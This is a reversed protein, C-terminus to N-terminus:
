RVRVALENEIHAVIQGQLASLREETLTGELDQFVMRYAVSRHDPPLHHGEFVDFISVSQVLAGGARRIERVIDGAPLTKPLVFALDREVAPYRPVPKFKVVRPQGRSLAKLDIEAVAVPVRVKESMLWQPHAAALFGINRGEVVVTAAQVPHWTPSASVWPVWQVQQIQLRELISELRAKLEFFVPTSVDAKEWLGPRSGWKVLALRSDQEYGTSARRFVYGVEFLRGLSLGHRYNHLLNKLLGPVLSIRMVDLDESLPNRLRVPETEMELGCDRYAGVAGLIEAQFKSSVFGYNVCQSLGMERALASVRQEFIFVGDQALPAYSLVPLREPIHDYGNLRGFEEVLDVDQELDVRFAPPIVHLGTEKSEVKCGLRLLWRELESEPVPYGLRQGVDEARVTIAPRDMPKPYFDWHDSAVEGGAVQQILLCARDLAFMVGSPDTGRAFRYASDTQIGHRRATQRVSDHAFHASEIFLCRTDEGVGSNMGGIVGALCVGRDRDRITLEEGSLKLETGDLTRFVEGPTARDVVIMQGALKNVDFAHLPQGLDMMVFNTVDVVNNISNLGVSELRTKLWAPSPGVRVGEIARAAYRSCLRPDRVDLKVLQKTSVNASAQLPASFPKLPRELLAAIERALGLHSLCDARNPSVNIEFIVDDLGYYADFPMGVPAEPPLIM